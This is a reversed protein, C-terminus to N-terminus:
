ARSARHQLASATPFAPRLRPHHRANEHDVDYGLPDAFVSPDRNAAVAVSLFKGQGLEVGSPMAAETFWREIFAVPPILRLSKRVATPLTDARGCSRSSSPIRSCSCHRTSWWRSPGDRDRRLPDRAASRRGEQGDAGRHLHEHSRRRSRATRRRECPSSSASCSRIPVGDRAGRRGPAPAQDGDVMAGAFANCISNSRPM